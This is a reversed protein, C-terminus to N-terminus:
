SRKLWKKMREWFTQSRRPNHYPGRCLPHEDGQLCWEDDYVQPDFYYICLSCPDKVHPRTQRAVM